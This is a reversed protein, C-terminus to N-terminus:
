INSGEVSARIKDLIASTINSREEPDVGSVVVRGDEIKEELIMFRNYLIEEKTDVEYALCFKRRDLVVEEVVYCESGDGLKLIKEKM